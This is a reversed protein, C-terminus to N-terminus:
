YSCLYWFIHEEAGKNNYDGFFGGLFYVRLEKWTYSEGHDKIASLTVVAVLDPKVEAWEALVSWNEVSLSGQSNCGRYICLYELKWRINRYFWFRTMNCRMLTFASNRATCIFVCITWCTPPPIILGETRHLPRRACDGVASVLASASRTKVDAHIISPQWFGDSKM